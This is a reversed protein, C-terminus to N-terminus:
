QLMVIAFFSPSVTITIKNQKQKSQQQQNKGREKKFKTFESSLLVTGSPYGSQPECSNAMSTCYIVKWM